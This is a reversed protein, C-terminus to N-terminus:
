NIAHRRLHNLACVQAPQVLDQLCNCSHTEAVKEKHLLLSGVAINSDRLDSHHILSFVQFRPWTGGVVRLLKRFPNGATIWEDFDNLFGEEGAAPPKLWSSSLSQHISTVSLPASEKGAASAPLVGHPQGPATWTEVALAHKLSRLNSKHSGSVFAGLVHVFADRTRLREGAFAEAM